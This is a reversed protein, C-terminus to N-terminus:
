LKVESGVFQYFFCNIWTVFPSLIYLSSKNPPRTCVITKLSPGSGGAGELHPGAIYVEIGGPCGLSRGGILLKKQAQPVAVFDRETRSFELFLWDTSKLVM